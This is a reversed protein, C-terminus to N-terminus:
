RHTEYKLKWLRIVRKHSSPKRALTYGVPKFDVDRFVHGTVNRHIYTPRPFVELVDEITIVRKKKLLKRATSRAGDLWTERSHQFLDQITSPNRM